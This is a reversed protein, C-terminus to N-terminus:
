DDAGADLASARLEGRDSPLVVLLAGAFGRGRLERCHAMGDLGLDIVIADDESFARSRLDDPQLRQGRSGGSGGVIFIGQLDSMPCGSRRRCALSRFADCSHFEALSSPPRASAQM